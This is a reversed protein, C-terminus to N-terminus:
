SGLSSGSSWGAVSKGGIHWHPAAREPYLLPDITVRCRYIDIGGDRYVRARKMRKLVRRAHHPELYAEKRVCENEMREIEQPTHAPRHAVSQTVQKVIAAECSPCYLNPDFRSRDKLRFPSAPLRDFQGGCNLCTKLM